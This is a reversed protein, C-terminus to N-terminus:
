QQPREFPRLRRAPERRSSQAPIASVECATGAAPEVQWWQLQCVTQDNALFPVLSVLDDLQLKFVQLREVGQLLLVEDPGGGLSGCACCELSQCSNRGTSKQSVTQCGRGGAGEGFRLPPSLRHRSGRETEPLPGPPPTELRGRLRCL